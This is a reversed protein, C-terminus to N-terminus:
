ANRISNNKDAWWEPLEITLKRGERKCSGSNDREQIAAIAAVCLHYNWQELMEMAADVVGATFAYVSYGICTGESPPTSAQSFADRGFAVLTEFAARAEERTPASKKLTKTKAMNNALFKRM